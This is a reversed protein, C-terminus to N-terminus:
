GLIKTIKKRIVPYACWQNEGSGNSSWLVYLYHINPNKIARADIQLFYTTLMLCTDYSSTISGYGSFFDFFVDNKSM